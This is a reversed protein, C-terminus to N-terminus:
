AKDENCYKCIARNTASVKVVRKFQAAVHKDERISNANNRPM